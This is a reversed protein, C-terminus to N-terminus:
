VAGFTRVTDSREHTYFLQAIALGLAEALSNQMQVRESSGVPGYGPPRPLEVRVPYGAATPPFPRTREALDLVKVRAVATPKPTSGDPALTFEDLTVFLVVDAGVASGIEAIPRPTSLADESMVRFAARSEIVDELENRNLLEQEIREAIVARLTRRPAESGRDDVVIVTTRSRDLEYLRETKPPGHVAFFVPAAINCGTLVMSVALLATAFAVRRLNAPPKQM